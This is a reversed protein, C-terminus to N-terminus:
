NPQVKKTRRFRKTLKISGFAVTLSIALYYPVNKPFERFAAWMEQAEKVSKGQSDYPDSVAIFMSNTECGFIYTVPYLLPNYSCKLNGTVSYGLCPHGEVLIQVSNVNATAEYGIGRVLAVLSLVGFSAFGAALLKKANEELWYRAEHHKKVKRPKSMRILNHPTSM